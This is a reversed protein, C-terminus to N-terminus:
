EIATMTGGWPPNGPGGDPLQHTQIAGAVRAEVNPVEARQQSAVVLDGQGVGENAQGELLGPQHLLQPGAPSVPQTAIWASAETLHDVEVATRV